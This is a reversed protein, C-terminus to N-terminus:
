QAKVTGLPGRALPFSVIRLGLYVSFSVVFATLATAFVPRWLLAVAVLLCFIVALRIVSGVAAVAVATNAPVKAGIRMILADLAWYLLAIAAGIAAGWVPRNLFYAAVACVVIM